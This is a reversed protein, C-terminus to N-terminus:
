QHSVVSSVGTTENRVTSSGKRSRRSFRSDTKSCRFLNRLENRFRSGIVCYLIGNIGHNTYQFVLCIKFILEPILFLWVANAISIPATLIIFTFSVLLLMATGTTSSKTLAQSTSETNERTSKWKVIMFKYVIACNCLIMIVFPGYSILIAFVSSLIELYLGLNGYSCYEGFKGKFKKAIFLFQLNFGVFILLTVLSVKRAMSVTCVSKTKLPFYLALCKEISIIVLLAPSCSFGFYMMFFGFGCGTWVFIDLQFNTAEVM